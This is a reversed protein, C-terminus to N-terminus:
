PGSSSGSEASLRADRACDRDVRALAVVVVKNLAPQLPKGRKQNRSRPRFLLLHLHEDVGRRQHFLRQRLHGSQAPLALAAVQTRLNPEHSNRPATSVSGSEAQDAPFPDNRPIGPRGRRRDSPPRGRARDARRGGSGRRGSSRARQGSEAHAERRSRCRCRPQSSQRATQGQFLKALTPRSASRPVGRAELVRARRVRRRSSAEKRPSKAPLGTLRVPLSRKMRLTIIAIPFEFSRASALEATSWNPSSLGSTRPAATHASACSRAGLCKEVSAAAPRRFSRLM